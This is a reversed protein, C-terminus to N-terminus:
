RDRRIELVTELSLDMEPEEIVLGVSAAKIWAVTFTADGGTLSVTITEGTRIIQNNINALPTEGMLVSRLRLQGAAQEIQGQRIRRQEVRPDVNRAPTATPTTTTTTEFIIFPNRQVFELAVQRETYSESLVHLVAEDRDGARAQANAADSGKGGKLSQLFSEISKEVETVTDSTASARTLTRMSFLGAIALAVVVTLLLASGAHRKASSEEVGVAFGSEAAFNGVGLPMSSPEAHGDEDNMSLNNDYENQNV